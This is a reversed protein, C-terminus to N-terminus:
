IEVWLTNRQFVSFAIRLALEALYTFRKYILYGKEKDWLSMKHTSVGHFLPRWRETPVNQARILYVILGTPSM